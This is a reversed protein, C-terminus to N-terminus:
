VQINGENYILMGEHVSIRTANWLDYAAVGYMYDLLIAPPLLDEPGILHPDTSPPLPHRRSDLVWASWRSATRCSQFSQAGERPVDDCDLV